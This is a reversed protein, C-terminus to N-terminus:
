PIFSPDVQATRSECFAVAEPVDNLDVHCWYGGAGVFCISPNTVHYGIGDTRHPWDKEMHGQYLDHVEVKYTRGAIRVPRGDKDVANRKSEPFTGRIVAGCPITVKDGRQFRPMLEAPVNGIFSASERGSRELWVAKALLTEATDRPSAQPLREGAELRQADETLSAVTLM